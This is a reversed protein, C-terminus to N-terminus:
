AGTRMEWREYGREFVWQQSFLRDCSKCRIAIASAVNPQEGHPGDPFLDPIVSRDVSSWLVHDHQNTEFHNPDFEDFSGGVVLDLM